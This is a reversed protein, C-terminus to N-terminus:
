KGAAEAKFHRAAFELGEAQVAAALKPLNHDIGAIEHYEHPVKLEDMQAHLRRNGALLVPKDATGIFFKIAVKGSVAGLNRALLATPHQAAFREADSGFANAFIYAKDKDGSLEEANRYSGAFAVVSSFMEPYMLGFKMAGYGGMSMGQIARGDRSAVTRYTADVHPILEKVVTTHALRRGDPSDSYWCSAGGNAYVVIMPPVKKERIAKDVIASPFGDGSESGGLGHLWYIVPYRATNGADAYGPPLYIQYGVPVGMAASQYTKHQRLPDQVKPPNVWKIAPQSTPAAPLTAPRAPAVDALAPAPIALGGFLLPAAVLALASATRALRGIRGPRIRKAIDRSPGALAVVVHKSM